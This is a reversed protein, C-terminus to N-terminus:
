KTRPRLMPLTLTAFSGSSSPPASSLQVIRWYEYFAHAYGYLSLRFFSFALCSLRELRLLMECILLFPLFAHCFITMVLRQEFSYGPANCAAKIGKHQRPDNCPLSIQCDSDCKYFQKGLNSQVPQM